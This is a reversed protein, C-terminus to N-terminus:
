FFDLDGNWKVLCKIIIRSLIPKDNLTAPIFTRDEDSLLNVDMNFSRDYDYFDSTLRVKYEALRGLPSVLLEVSADFYYTNIGFTDFPLQFLTIYPLLGYYDGGIKMPRTLRDGKQMKEDFLFGVGAVSYAPGVFTLMKADYNYRQILKGRTNYFHWTGKKKGKIFYGSAIVTKRQYLAQYPGEKTEKDSKLVYFRETVSDTLKNKREVTDQALCTNIFVLPVIFLFINKV